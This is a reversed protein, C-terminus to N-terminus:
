RRVMSVVYEILYIKPAIYIQVATFVNSFFLISGVVSPIIGGFICLPVYDMDDVKITWITVIIGLILLVLGIISLMTYYTFKWKLFEEILDPAQSKIMDLSSVIATKSADVIDGGVSKAGMLISVIAQQVNTNSSISSVVTATNTSTQANVATALFLAIITTYIYKM